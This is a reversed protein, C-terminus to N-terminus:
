NGDQSFEKCSAMASNMNCVATSYLHPVNSKANLYASANVIANDNLPLDEFKSKQSGGNAGKFVKKALISIITM